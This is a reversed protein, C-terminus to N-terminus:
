KSDLNLNLDPDSVSQLGPDPDTAFYLKSDEDSKKGDYHDQDQFNYLCNTM